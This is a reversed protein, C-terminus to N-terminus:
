PEDWPAWREPMEWWTFDHMAVKAPPQSQWEIREEEALKELNKAGPKGIRQDTRYTDYNEVSYAVRARSALLIKGIGKKWMDVSTLYCESVIDTPQKIEGNEHHDSLGMRFRIDHEIFVSSDFAAMGNWCAFVQLPMLNEFRHRDETRDPLPTPAIKEDLSRPDRFYKVLGDHEYWPDGSMARLVWRDYVIRGGWDWDVSCSEYAGQERRQYLVELVDAACYIIDNMFLVEDFKRGPMAKEIAGSYLPALALNRAIALAEIRHNFGKDFTFNKGESIITYSTGLNDLIDALLVLFQQTADESGNEYISVHISSPTLFKLVEPMQSIITPFTQANNHLNMALFVNKGSNRLSAYRMEHWEQFQCTARSFPTLAWAKRQIEAVRTLNQFPHRRPARLLKLVEPVADISPLPGTDYNELEYPTTEPLPDVIMRHRAQWGFASLFLICAILLLCGVRLYRRKNNAVMPKVSAPLTPGPLLTYPFAKWTSHSDMVSNALLPLPLCMCGAMSYKLNSSM